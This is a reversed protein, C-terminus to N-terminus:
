FSYDRYAMREGILLGYGHGTGRWGRKTLRFTVTRGEPNEEYRYAQSESMGNSDTRTARDERVVVTKGSPSVKIITGAHRDTWALMTVGMGVAPAPQKSRSMLHNTLSGTETGAKLGIM